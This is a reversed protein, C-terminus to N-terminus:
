VLSLFGQIFQEGVTGKNREQDAENFIAFVNKFANQTFVMANM